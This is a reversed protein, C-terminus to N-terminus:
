PGIESARRGESREVGLVRCWVNRAAGGGSRTGEFDGAFERWRPSAELWRRVASGTGKTESKAREEVAEICGATCAMRRESLVGKGGVGSACLM